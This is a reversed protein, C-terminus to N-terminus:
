ANWNRRSRVRRVTRPTVGIQTLYNQTQAISKHGLLRSIELVDFGEDYLEHAYAHRFAHAHIRREVKARTQVRPLMERIYASSVKDGDCTCFLPKSKSRTVEERRKLWQKLVVALADDFPVVRRRGGKGRVVTVNNQELDLDLPTVDLAEQCRLGTRYIFAIFTGNRAGTFCGPNAAKRLAQVEALTPVVVPFKRGRNGPPTIAAFTLQKRGMGFIDRSLGITDLDQAARSVNRSEDVAAALTPPM